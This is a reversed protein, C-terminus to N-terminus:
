RQPLLRMGATCLVYLPTEKHKPAPVHAAAFRLLPRLYPTAREPEAAAAVSIGAHAHRSGHAGLGPPWGPAARHHRM